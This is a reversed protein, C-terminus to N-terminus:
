AFISHYAPMCAIRAPNIEQSCVVSSPEMRHVFREGMFRNISEALRDGGYILDGTIVVKDLDMVNALNMIEFALIEVEEKFLQMALPNKDMSDMVEKWSAFPTNKLIHPIAVFLELCGRNGCKCLPGERDLTIHGIEPSFGRSGMFLNGNIVFGAGVSDDVRLVMFNETGDRGIGFYLEDLAYANTTYGMYVDWGLRKHLEDALYADRKKAMGPRRLVDAHHQEVPSPLCVGIGYVKSPRPNLTEVANKFLEATEDMLVPVEMSKYVNRCNWLVKGHLNMIGLEYHTPGCYIGAVCLADKVLTLQTQRRGPRRSDVTASEMVLGEQMLSDVIQTISARTLQTEDSLKARSIPRRRICDLVMHRNIQKMVTSNIARLLFVEWSNKLILLYNSM